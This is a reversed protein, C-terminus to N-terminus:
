YLWLHVFGACGCGLYGIALLVHSLALMFLFRTMTM